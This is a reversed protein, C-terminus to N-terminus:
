HFEKVKSKELTSEIESGLTNLVNNREGESPYWYVFSKERNDYAIGYVIRGNLLHFLNGQRKGYPYKEVLEKVDCSFLPFAQVTNQSSAYISYRMDLFNEDKGVYLPNDLNLLPYSKKEEMDLIYELGYIKYFLTKHNIFFMEEAELIPIKTAGELLRAKNGRYDIRYAKTMVLGVMNKSFTKQVADWKSLSSLVVEGTKYNIVRYLNPEGLLIELERNCNRVVILDEESGYTGVFHYGYHALYDRLMEETSFISYAQFERESIMRREQEIGIIPEIRM